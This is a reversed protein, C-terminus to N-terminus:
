QPWRWEEEPEGNTSYKLLVAAHDKRGYTTEYQRIIHEMHTVMNQYVHSLPLRYCVRAADRDLTRNNIQVLLQYSVIYDNPAWYFYRERVWLRAYIISVCQLLLYLYRLDM